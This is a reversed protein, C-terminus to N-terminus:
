FIWMLIYNQKEFDNSNTFLMIMTMTFKVPAFNCRYIKNMSELNIINLYIINVKLQIM